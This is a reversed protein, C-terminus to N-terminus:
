KMMALDTIFKSFDPAKNKFPGKRKKNKYHKTAMEYLVKYSNKIQDQEMNVIAKLCGQMMKNDPCLPTGKVKTASLAQCAAPAAAKKRRCNLPNCTSTCGKLKKCATSKSLCEDFNMTQNDRCLSVDYACLVANSPGGLAYSDLSSGQLLIFLFLIKKIMKAEM